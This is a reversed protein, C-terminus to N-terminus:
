TKTFHVTQQKSDRQYQCCKHAIIRKLQLSSSRTGESMQCTAFPATRLPSDEPCLIIESLLCFEVSPPYKLLHDFYMVPSFWSRQCSFLCFHTTKQGRAISTCILPLYLQVFVHSTTQTGSLDRPAIARYVAQTIASLKFICCCNKLTPFEM